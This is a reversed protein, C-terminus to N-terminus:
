RLFLVRRATDTKHDIDVARPRARNNFICDQRQLRDPVPTSHIRVALGAIARANVYLYRHIEKVILDLPCAVRRALILQDRDTLDKQRPCVKAACSVQRVM